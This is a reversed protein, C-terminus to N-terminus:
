ARAGAALSDAYVRALAHGSSYWGHAEAHRRGAAALRAAYAPDGLVRGIAAAWLAPDREPVLLGTVGDDVAECLGGAASAVVPVGSAAAEIAVLGYTESHSPVLMVAAERVLRAFEPRPQPGIFRVDDAVGRERALDDLQRRYDALDASPEGAIRLEPRTSAPMAALAEIALDFGKLPHLRGAVLAFPRADPRAAREDATEPRFLETDVGPPVVAVRAPDAGLRELATAAEARSVAVVLDSARALHAEGALRGPSEPREGASWPTSPDAAISHYSQLHPVGRERALPLAAMGSFWHHSHYLDYPGHEALRERFEPVVEEHRGKEIPEAPGADLHHLVCREALRLTAPAEADSRRTLIEVEHGAAALALAQERVVVNMGGADGAGPDSAPSTHLCVLGIRLPARTTM